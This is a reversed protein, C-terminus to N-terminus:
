RMKENKPDFLAAPGVVGVTVPYQECFYEVKLQKGVEAYEPPLYTMLVHKGLSPGNGASTVYSRRGKRDTIAKGAATLIPEGGLMYRQQGNKSRHDDVTLSCLTAAPEIERELLYAEKGIFDADKVNRRALGCEVPSFSSELEAGYLRYSKEIRGTTGYVGIGCPIIGFSKGTEALIDWLYRGCETPFHLEWGMEGVYSIRLAWVPLENIDLLQASAFPFAENSLDNSCISQLCKRANPGWIGITSVGSTLDAFQVSGDGPLHDTFWKKDRNGDAGGTIIRYTDHATRIMTLDSKMGGKQDLLTTYVAKGINVDMEALAMKQAYSVVNSGKIEFQAFASLDCLAGNERLALHEANIIPSWWRADWENDRPM